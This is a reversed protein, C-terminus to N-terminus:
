AHQSLFQRGAGTLVFKSAGAYRILGDEALLKMTAIGSHPVREHLGYTLKTAMKGEALGELLVIMPDDNIADALREALDIDNEKVAKMCKIAFHDRVDVKARNQNATKMM